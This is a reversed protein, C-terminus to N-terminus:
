GLARTLFALRTPYVVKALCGLSGPTSSPKKPGPEKRKDYVSAARRSQFVQVRTKMWTGATCVTSKISRYVSKWEVHPAHVEPFLCAKFGLTSSRCTKRPLHSLGCRGQSLWPTKGMVGRWDPHLTGHTDKPQRRPRPPPQM